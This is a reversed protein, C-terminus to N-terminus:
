ELGFEDQFRSFHMMVQQMYESWDPLLSHENRETQTAIYAALETGRASRKCLSHLAAAAILPANECYIQHFYAFQVYHKNITLTRIRRAKKKIAAERLM